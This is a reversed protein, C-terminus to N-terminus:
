TTAEGCSLFPSTYSASTYSANSLMRGRAVCRGGLVVPARTEPRVSKIPSGSLVGALRAVWEQM